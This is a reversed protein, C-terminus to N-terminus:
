KGIAQQCQELEHQFRKALAENQIALEHNKTAVQRAADAAAKQVFAFVLFVLSIVTAMALVGATIRSRQLQVHYYSKGNPLIIEKLRDDTSKHPTTTPNM